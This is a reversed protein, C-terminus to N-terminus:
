DGDPPILDRDGCNPNRITRFTVSGGAQDVELVEAKAYYSGSGFFQCAARRTRIVYVGGERVPVPEGSYAASDGPARTLDDFGQDELLGVRARSSIGPFAVAPILVLAGDEDGLAVDWQGTAGPQEVPIRIGNVFDFASPLGVLETRSVSFLTVSDPVAVWDQNGLPDESCAGLVLPILLPLLMPSHRHSM